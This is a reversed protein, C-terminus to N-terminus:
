QKKSTWNSLITRAKNVSIVQPINYFPIDKTLNSIIEYAATGCINVKNKEAYSNLSDSIFQKRDYAYKTATTDIAASLSDKTYSYIMELRIITWKSLEKKYTDIEDTVERQGKKIDYYLIKSCQVIDSKDSRWYEAIHNSKDKEKEQLRRFYKSNLSDYSLFYITDYPKWESTLNLLGLEQRRMNDMPQGCALLITLGLFTLLNKM